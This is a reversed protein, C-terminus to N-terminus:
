EKEKLVTVIINAKKPLDDSKKLKLAATPNNM